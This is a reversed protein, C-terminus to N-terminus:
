SSVYPMVFTDTIIM